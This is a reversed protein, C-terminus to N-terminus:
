VPRAVQGAEVRYSTLLRDVKDARPDARLLTNGLLVACSIWGLRQNVRVGKFGDDELGAELGSLNEDLLITFYGQKSM